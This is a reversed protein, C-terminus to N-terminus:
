SADRVHEKHPLLAGPWFASISEQNQPTSSSLGGRAESAPGSFGGLYRRSFEELTLTIKADPTPFLAVLDETVPKGAFKEGKRLLRCPTHPCGEWELRDFRDNLYTIITSLLDPM